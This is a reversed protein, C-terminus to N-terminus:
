ATITWGKNTGISIENGVLDLFNQHVKLKGQNSNPTEAHGIFDYLGNLINICSQYTLNPCKKLNNDSTLSTKLNIFGGFDTLNTLEYSGVFGNYSPMSVKDTRIASLKQLNTCKYLFSNMTTLNSTDWNSLDIETLKDCNYFMDSIDTLNSVNWNKIASIDTLAMCYYFMRVASKLNSTDWNEAAMMSIISAHDFMNTANTVKSTDWPCLYTAKNYTFLYSCDSPLEANPFDYWSQLLYRQTVNTGEPFGYYEKFTM